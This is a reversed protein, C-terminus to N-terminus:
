QRNAIKAWSDKLTVTRNLVLAGPRSDPDVCFYGLREFQFREGPIAASLIPEVMCESVVEVNELPIKLTSAISHHASEVLQASCHVTLNEGEWQALSAPPEMPNHSQYPTTYTADVKAAGEALGRDADGIRSDPKGAVM